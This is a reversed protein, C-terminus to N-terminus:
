PVILIRENYQRNATQLQLLYVGAALKGTHITARVDHVEMSAVSQGNLDSMRLNLIREPSEVYLLNRAPNPYVLLEGADRGKVRTINVFEVRADTDTQLYELLYEPEDWGEILSDNILWANVAYGEDATATFLIDSGEAVEDGSNIQMGEIEAMLSGNGSLVGFTLIHMIAEFGVSVEVSASLEELIFVNDTESELVEGDLKWNKVKFGPNPEATFVITTGEVLLEGTDIGTDDVAALLIGNEDEVAFHLQHMTVEVTETPESEYEGDYMATVYYQYHGTDSVADVYGATETSGTLEFAAQNHSRYIHYHTLAREGSETHSRASGAETPAEWSLHVENLWTTYSLNGPPAIYELEFDVLLTEGQNITMGELTQPVYGALSATLDYSGALVALSYFGTQGPFCLQDGATIWVGTLDGPGGNLSVTGEFYALNDHIEIGGLMVDDINWWNINWSDGNFTWAIRFAESGVDENDILVTETTAPRNANAFSMIERWSSGGDGSSEVSLLYDGQYHNILHKFELEILQYDATNLPPTILRQVAITSPDYHFRAEPPSGGALDGEYHQWNIHDATSTVEWGEPPWTDFPEQLLYEAVVHTTIELEFSDFSDFGEDTDVFLEFSAQYVNPTALSASVMFSFAAEEGPELLFHSAQGPPHINIYPSASMLQAQLDHLSDAGDNRYTAILEVTEGPEFIGNDNGYAADDVAVDLLVLPGIVAFGHPDYPGIYPHNEGRGSADAARIYYHIEAGIDQQPIYATYWHGEDHTMLEYEFEGEDIRYYVRLSDAYLDEGSMPIIRARIEHDLHHQQNAIVPQHHIYLMDGDAIDKVRCHLADNSHWYNYFIGHVEYGPMAAEFSAVAADDWESGTIPVFVRNNLILTNAYPENNPTYVRYVRFPTGYSSIQSEFYAVAQEAHTYYPHDPAVERIMIKDPALFKAWTDIHSLGGHINPVVHYHEIGLYLNMISDVQAPTYNNNVSYAASTSASIGMGDTMYDGGTHVLGMHYYNIDNEAAFLGPIANDFPRPRDYEFDMIGIENDNNFIFWPGYDRTWISNTPALLFSCNDMNVGNNQYTSMAQNMTAQDAVISVVEIEESMLAVLSVPIGLPFRVLAASMPEYEAINRAPQAPPETAERMRDIEHLRLKEEATLEIPLFGDIHPQQASLSCASFAFLLFLIAKKM